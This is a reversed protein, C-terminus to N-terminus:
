AVKRCLVLGLAVLGLVMIPLPGPEPIFLTLNLNDYINVTEIDHSVFARGADLQLLGFQMIDGAFDPHSDAVDAGTIPDIQLFDEAM